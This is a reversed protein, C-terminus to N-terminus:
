ASLSSAEVKVRSHATPPKDFAKVYAEAASAVTGFSEGPKLFAQSCRCNIWEGPPATEDGPFRMPAGGVVFDTGLPREQGDALRHTERTKTDHHAVWARGGVHGAPLNQAYVYQAENYAGHSATAAALKAHADADSFLGNVRTGITDADENNAVGEQLQAAVKHSMSTTLQQAAETARATMAERVAGIADGDDLDGPLGIQRAVEHAALTAAVNLHPELLTRMKDSWFKQDYIGGPDLQPATQSAEVEAEVTASNIAVKEPFAMKLIELTITGAALAAGLVVSSSFGLALTVAVETMKLVKALQSLTVTGASLVASTIATGIGIVPPTSASTPPIAPGTSTAPQTTTTGTPKVEAAREEIGLAKAIDVRADNALVDLEDRVSDQVVRHGEDWATTREEAARKLMTKGRKGVMRSMTARGQEKYHESLAGSLPDSAQAIHKLNTQAFKKRDYGGKTPGIVGVQRPIPPIPQGPALAREAVSSEITVARWSADKGTVVFAESVKPQDPEPPLAMNLYNHQLYGKPQGCDSCLKPDVGPAPSSRFPHPGAVFRLGAGVNKGPQQRNPDDNTQPDEVVAHIGASAAQGCGECSALNQGIFHHQGKVKTKNIEDAQKKSPGVPLFNYAGSANDEQEGVFNGDRQGMEHAGCEGNMNHDHVHAQDVADRDEPHPGALGHVDKLHQAIQDATGHPSAGDSNHWNDGPSTYKKGLEMKHDWSADRVSSEIVIADADPPPFTPVQEDRFVFEIALEEDTMPVFDMWDTDERKSHAAAKMAEWQALASAAKAMTAPTAHSKHGFTPGGRAWTHMVGIAIQLADQFPHGNKMLGRTVGRIYPPLGGVRAVWNSTTSTSFPSEDIRTQVVEFCFDSRTVDNVPHESM